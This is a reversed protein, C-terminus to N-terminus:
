NFLLVMSDILHHLAMKFEESEILTIAVKALLEGM